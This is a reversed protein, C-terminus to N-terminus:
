AAWRQAITGLVLQSTARRHTRKLATNPARLERSRLSRTRSALRVAKLAHVAGVTVLVVNM